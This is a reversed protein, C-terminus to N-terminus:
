QWKDRQTSAHSGSVREGDGKGPLLALYSAKERGEDGEDQRARERARVKKRTNWEEDECATATRASM